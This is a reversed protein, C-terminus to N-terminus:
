AVILRREFHDRLAATLVRAARPLAMPQELIDKVVLPEDVTLTLTFKREPVDWWARGGYLAAPECKMTVPVPDCGAKLAVYAAGRAFLGLRDAPSRTGEPFFIVSRGRNLREVCDAVLGPGDLNSIYGAGKVVGGLFLNHYHSAKVVCDAQPMLSMLCLADILTPHNAVVLVGPQKLREGNSCRLRMVQLLEFTALLIRVIRHVWLQSRIEKQERTGPLLRIIPFIVVALLMGLLGAQAFSIGTGLIRWIRSGARALRGTAIAFGGPSSAPASPSNRQM